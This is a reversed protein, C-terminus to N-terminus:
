IEVGWYTKMDYRKTLKLENKYCFVWVSAIAILFVPCRVTQSVNIEM